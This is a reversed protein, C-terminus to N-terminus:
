LSQLEVMMEAKALAIQEIHSNSKVHNKMGQINKIHKECKECYFGGEGEPKIFAEEAIVEQGDFGIGVMRVGYDPHAKLFSIVSSESIGLKKAEAETDLGGYALGEKAALLPTFFPANLPTFRVRQSKHPVVIKGAPTDVVEQRAPSITYSQRKMTSIFQM